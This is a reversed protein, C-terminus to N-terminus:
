LWSKGEEVPVDDIKTVVGNSLYIVRQNSSGKYKSEDKLAEVYMGDVLVDVVKLIRPKHKIIEGHTEGTYMWINIGERQLAMCLELMAPYQCLPDGGSLTVGDLLHMNEKVADVIEAISMDRGYNFDQLYLNHCGKCNKDCGSFFIVMRAGYGNVLSNPLIGGVRLIGNSIM